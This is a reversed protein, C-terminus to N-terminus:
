IINKQKLHLFHLKIKQSKEGLSCLFHLSRDNVSLFLSRPSKIKFEVDIFNHVNLLDRNLLNGNLVLKFGKIFVSQLVSYL